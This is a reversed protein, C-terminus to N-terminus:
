CAPAARAAPSPFSPPSSQGGWSSHSAAMVGPGQRTGLSNICALCGPSGGAQLPTHLALLAPSSGLSGDWYIDEPCLPPSCSGWAGQEGPPPLCVPCSNCSVGSELHTLVSGAGCHVHPRNALLGWARDWVWAELSRPSVGSDPRCRSSSSPLYLQHSFCDQGGRQGWKLEAEHRQEQESVEPPSCPPHHLLEGPLPHLLPPRM